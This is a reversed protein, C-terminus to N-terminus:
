IIGASSREWWQMDITVTFEEIQDIMDFGLQISSVDVPFAGVITYSTIVKGQRDMQEILMDVAYESLRTAGVNERAGNIMNMWREFATRVTWDTDNIVTMNIPNFVRDGALKMTRGMHPVDIVGQSIGPFELGKCTFQLKRSADAGAVLLPFACTVNYLTPRAGGAFAAKFQALSNSM